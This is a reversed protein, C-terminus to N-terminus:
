RVVAVLGFEASAGFNTVVRLEYTGGAIAPVSVRKPQGDFQAVAHGDPTVVDLALDASSSLTVDLTGSSSAVVAFRLCGDEEYDQGACTGSSRHVTDRIEKGLGVFVLPDLVADLRTGGDILRKFETFHGSHSFRVLTRGWRSVAPVGSVEYRGEGNTTTSPEPSLELVSVRAGV